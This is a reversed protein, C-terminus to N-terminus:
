VRERCSARGIKWHQITTLMQSLNQKLASTQEAFNQLQWSLLFGIGVICFMLFLIALLASAWRPLGKKELWSSPAVFLMALICAIALPALIGKGYYLIIVMLVITLTIQVVKSVSKNM